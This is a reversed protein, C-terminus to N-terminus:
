NYIRILETDAAVLTLCTNKILEAIIGPYKGSHLAYATDKQVSDYHSSAYILKVVEWGQSASIVSNILPVYTGELWQKMVDVQTITEADCLLPLIDKLITKRNAM